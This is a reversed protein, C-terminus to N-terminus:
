IYSGASLLIYPNLIHKKLILWRSSNLKTKTSYEILLFYFWYVYPITLAIFLPHSRDLLYVTSHMYLICEKSAKRAM